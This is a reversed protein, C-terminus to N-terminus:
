SIQDPSHGEEGVKIVVGDSLEGTLEDLPM